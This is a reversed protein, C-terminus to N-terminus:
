EGWIQWGSQKLTQVTARLVGEANLTNCHACLVARRNGMSDIALIWGDHCKSCGRSQNVVSAAAQQYQPWMDLMAKTLNRPFSDKERKIRNAVWDLFSDPLHKVQGYWSELRATTAGSQKLVWDTNFHLALGIVFSKFAERSMKAGDSISRSYPNARTTTM